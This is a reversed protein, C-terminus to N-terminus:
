NIPPKIGAQRFVSRATGAPITRKPHPVTVLGPKNPHKYHHHSGTVRDLSWGDAEIMKILEASTFATKTVAEGSKHTYFVCKQPPIM